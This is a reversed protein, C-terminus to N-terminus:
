SIPIVKADFTILTMFGEYQPCNNLENGDKRSVAIDVHNTSVSHNHRIVNVNYTTLDLSSGAGWGEIAGIVRPNFNSVNTIELTTENPIDCPLTVTITIVKKDNSAYSPCAGPSILVMISGVNYKYSISKIKSNAM